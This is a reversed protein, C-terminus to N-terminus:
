APGEETSIVNDTVSSYKCTGVFYPVQRLINRKIKKIKEAPMFLLNNTKMKSSVCRVPKM